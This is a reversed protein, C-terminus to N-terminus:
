ALSALFSSVADWCAGPNEFQPTHGADPVVALTARPLTAALREAPGLFRADQEGVLVLTAPSPDLAALSALIDPCTVLERGIAAYLYPSTTRLKADEFDRYGPREAVLRRHAPTELPSEAEAVLDALTAMGADLAIAAAAEVDEPPIGEVPGHSTDMLVLGGVRDPAGLAIRQAVFGGMSHGLLVVSRWGLADVLAVADRALLSLSYSETGPPKSSRGHGRHDPAVAHWGLSALPDLWEGFDEKAGTFGHLLLLPRGGPGAEAVALRVDGLDVTRTQM